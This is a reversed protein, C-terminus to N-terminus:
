FLDRKEGMHYFFNPIASFPNYPPQLQVVLNCFLPGALPSAPARKVLMKGLLRGTLQGSMVQGSVHSAMYAHPIPHGQLGNLVLRQSEPRIEALEGVM